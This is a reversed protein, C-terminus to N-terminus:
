PPPRAPPAPRPGGRPLPAGDASHPAAAERGGGDADDGDDPESAEVRTEWRVNWPALMGVQSCIKQVTDRVPRRLIVDDSERDLGETLARDIEDADDLRDNLHTADVIFEIVADKRGEVRGYREAEEQTRRVEGDHSRARSRDILRQKLMITLRVARAARAFAAVAAPADFNDPDNRVGINAQEDVREAMRMAITQLARLMAIDEATEAAAPDVRPPAALTALPHPM